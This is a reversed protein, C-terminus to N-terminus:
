IYLANIPTLLDRCSYSRRGDDWYFFSTDFQTYVTNSSYLFEILERNWEVMQNWARRQKDAPSIATSVSNQAEGSGATTSANNRLYWYYIYNAIPSERYLTNENGTTVSSSNGFYSYTDENNFVQGNLLTLTSGSVSYEDSRLKGFGRQFFSFRKGVLSSPITVSASDAIPDYTQGRGVVIDIPTGFDIAISSSDPTRILGKWKDLRGWRNTYETGNLLDTWKTLPDDEILGAQFDRSLEYGLLKALFKPEYENIFWQLNSLVPGFSKQAVELNGYFYSEDIIM